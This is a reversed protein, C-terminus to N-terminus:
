LRRIIVPSVGDARRIIVHKPQTPHLRVNSTVNITGSVELTNLLQLTIDSYNENPITVELLIPKDTPDLPDTGGDFEKQDSYGDADTDVVETLGWKKSLYLTIKMMADTDDFNDINLKFIIVEAITGVGNSGGVSTTGTNADYSNGIGYLYDSSNAEFWMPDGDSGSMTAGVYGNLM